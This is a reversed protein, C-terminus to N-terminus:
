GDEILLFNARQHEMIVEQVQVTVRDGLQFSVKERRSQLMYEDETFLLDEYPLTTIHVLGEALSKELEVFFGFNMVGSIIGPLKEGIQTELWRLQKLRIYEREASQSKLEMENAHHCITQLQNSNDPDVKLTSQIQKIRRHVLLDPYRRIPSTFHTYSGFALGFHGRNGTSYQAKTMTRLAVSEILGKFPSDQIDLLLKRIDRSHIQSGMQYTPIRLKKMLHLFKQIDDEPPKEHVRFVFPHVKGFQEAITKNAVLMCEEVM